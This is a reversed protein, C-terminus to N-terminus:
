AARITKLKPSKRLQKKKIVKAKRRSKHAAGAEFPIFLEEIQKVLTASLSSNKQKIM